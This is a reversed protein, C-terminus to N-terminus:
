AQTPRDPDSAPPRTAYYVEIHENTQASFGAIPRIVCLCEEVAMADLFALDNLVADTVLLFRKTGAAWVMDNLRVLGDGVRTYGSPIPYDAM